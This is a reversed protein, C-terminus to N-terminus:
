PPQHNQKQLSRWAKENCCKCHPMAGDQPFWQNERWTSKMVLKLYSQLLCLDSNGHKTEDMTFYPGTIKQCGMAVWVSVSLYLIKKKYVEEPKFSSWYM